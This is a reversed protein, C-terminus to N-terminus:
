LSSAYSTIFFMGKVECKIFVLKGGMTQHHHFFHHHHHHHLFCKFHLDSGNLFPDSLFGLALINLM